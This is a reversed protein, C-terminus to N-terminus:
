FASSRWFTLTAGNSLKLLNANNTRGDALRTAGLRDRLVVNQLDRWAGLREEGHQKGDQDAVAQDVPVIRHLLMDRVESQRVRQRVPVDRDAIKQAMARSQAPMVKQPEFRGQLRVFHDAADPM